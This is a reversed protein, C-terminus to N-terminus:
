TENPFTNKLGDTDRTKYKKIFKVWCMCLLWLLNCWDYPFFCELYQEKDLICIIKGRPFLEQTVSSVFIVCYELNMHGM